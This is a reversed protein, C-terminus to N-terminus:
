VIEASYGAKKFGAIIEEINADESNITVLKDPHGLDIKYDVIGKDSKLLPEVKMVCHKCSLDTKIKVQEM